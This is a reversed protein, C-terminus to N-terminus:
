VPRDLIDYLIDVEENLGDPPSGAVGLIDLLVLVLSCLGTRRAFRIMASM